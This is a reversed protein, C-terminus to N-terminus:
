RSELNAKLNLKRWQFRSDPLSEISNPGETTSVKLGARSSIWDSWGVVAVSNTSTIIWNPSMEINPATQGSVAPLNNLVFLCEAANFTREEEELRRVTHTAVRFILLAPVIRIQTSHMNEIVTRGGSHQCTILKHLTSGTRQTLLGQKNEIVRRCPM